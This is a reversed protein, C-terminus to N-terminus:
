SLGKERKGLMAGCSRNSFRVLKPVTLVKLRTLLTLQFKVSLKQLEKTHNDHLMTGTLRSGSLGRSPSCQHLGLPQIKQFNGGRLLVKDNEFIELGRGWLWSTLNFMIIRLCALVDLKCSAVDYSCLLVDKSLFLVDWRHSFFMIVVFLFCGQM